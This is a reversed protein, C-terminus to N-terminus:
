TSFFNPRSNGPQKAPGRTLQTLQERGRSSVFELPLAHNAGGNVFVHYANLTRREFCSIIAVPEGGGAHSLINLRSTCVSLVASLCVCVSLGFPSCVHSRAVVRMFLSVCVVFCVVFCLCLSGCGSVCFWGVSWCIWWRVLGFVCSCICLCVFVSLNM